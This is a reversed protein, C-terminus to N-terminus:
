FTASTSSGLPGRTCGPRCARDSVFDSETQGSGQELVQLNGIGELMSGILCVRWCLREKWEMGVLGAKEQNGWAVSMEAVM